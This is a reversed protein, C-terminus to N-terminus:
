MDDNWFGWDVFKSINDPHFRNNMLDDKFVICRRCAMERFLDRAWVAPNSSLTMLDIKDINSRLVRETYVSKNKCLSVWDIMEIHSSLFTIAGETPNACLGTWNIKYYGISLVGILEDVSDINFGFQSWFEYALHLPDTNM